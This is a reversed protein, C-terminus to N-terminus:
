IYLFYLVREFLKEIGEALTKQYCLKKCYQQSYQKLKLGNFMVRMLDTKYPTNPTLDDICENYPPPQKHHFIRNIGVSTLFGPSLDIGNSKLDINKDSHNHVLIRLGRKKSFSDIKESKGLYIELELGGESGVRGIQLLGNANFQYCNGFEFDYFWEFDKLGCLVTNIRCFLMMEELQNGFKKKEENPLGSVYLKLQKSQAIMDIFPHNSSENTANPDYLNEAVLKQYFSNSKLYSLNFQNLSCFSITPFYTPQETIIKISTSVPYSFYLIISEVILYSCYASCAVLCLFWVLKLFYSQNRSISGPGHITSSECWEKLTESLKKARHSNM